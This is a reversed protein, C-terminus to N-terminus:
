YPSLLNRITNKIKTNFHPFNCAYMHMFLGHGVMYCSRLILLVKYDLMGTGQVSIKM